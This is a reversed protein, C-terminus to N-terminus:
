GESCDLLAEYSNLGPEQRFEAIACGSAIRIAEQANDFLRFQNNAGTAFNQAVARNGEIRVSFVDGGATIEQGPMVAAM